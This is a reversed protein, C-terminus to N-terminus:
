LCQDVFHPTSRRGRGPLVCDTASGPVVRPRGPAGIISRCPPRPTRPSRCVTLTSPGSRAPYCACCASATTSIASVMNGRLRMAKCPVRCPAARDMQGAGPRSDGRSLGATRGAVVATRYPMASPPQWSCVTAYPHSAASSIVDSLLLNSFVWRQADVFAALSAALPSFSEAVAAGSNARSTFSASLFRHRGAQLVPDACDVPDDGPVGPADYRM